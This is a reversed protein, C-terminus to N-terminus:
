QDALFEALDIFEQVQLQEPRKKAFTSFAENLQPYQKYLTNNLMKRRKGFASKLIELLKKPSSITNKRRILHFVASDVKPPPNFSGPKVTKVFNVEYLSQLLVALIGYAKNGSKAMIRMVVEKQLMGVVESVLDANLFIKVLAAGSIQYPFNSVIAMKEGNFCDSLNLKLFDQHIIEPTNAGYREKLYHVSREDFEVLKLNPTKQTLFDTLVGKGPGVELINQYALGFDQLLEPMKKALHVDTLFHQGLSKDPRYNLDQEEM